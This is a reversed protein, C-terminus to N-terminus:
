ETLIFVAEASDCGTQLYVLHRLLHMMSECMDSPEWAHVLTTSNCVNEGHKHATVLTITIKLLRNSDRNSAVLQPGPVSCITNLQKDLHVPHPWHQLIHVTSYM